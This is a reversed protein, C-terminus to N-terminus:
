VKINEVDAVNRAESREARGQRPLTRIHVVHSLIFVNNFPDLVFLCLLSPSNKDSKIRSPVAAIRLILLVNRHFLVKETGESGSPDRERRDKVRECVCV